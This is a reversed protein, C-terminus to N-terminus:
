ISEMRNEQERTDPIYYDAFNDRRNFLVRTKWVGDPLEIALFMTFCYADTPKMYFDDVIGQKIRAKLWEKTRKEGDYVHSKSLMWLQDIVEKMTM